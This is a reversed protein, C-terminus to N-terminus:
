RWGNLRALYQYEESSCTQTAYERCMMAVLILDDPQGNVKGDYKYLTNGRNLTTGATGNVVSPKLYRRFRRMQDKLKKKTLDPDRSVFERAFKISGNSLESAFCNVMVEKLTDTLWCGDRKQNTPDRNIFMIKINGGRRQLINKIDNALTWSLNSEISVFCIANRYADVMELM